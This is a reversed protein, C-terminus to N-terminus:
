ERASAASCSSRHKVGGRLVSAKQWGVFGAEQGDLRRVQQLRGSSGELGDAQDKAHFGPVPPLSYSWNADQRPAPFGEWAAQSLYPWNSGLLSPFSSAVGSYFAVSVKVFAVTSESLRAGFCLGKCRKM